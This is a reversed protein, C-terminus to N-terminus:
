LYSEITRRFGDALSTAPSWGLARAKAIDPAGRQVASALYNDGQPREVYSVSLGKEPYMGVLLQGLARMSIEGDPNGINYAQGDAGDLLVKWFGAVADASYCFSRTALGDSKLAIAENHLICAVFDAYVRGDDLQMRPGYTHFPRVIKVPIGYQHSWSVCMNEGMRKSEAYCARVSTPDVIGYDQEATPVKSAAGYVESSSFYLFGKSGSTRALELLAATGLTNASLTGVPDTAYYKPSAQSAAHIIYDPREDLTFPKSIDQEICVLDTRGGQHAHQPLHHAYRREFGARNRVMALVRIGLQRTENLYLMTEVMYSPLFGSAGTICVTQGALRSWDIGPTAVIAAMDATEIPHRSAQTM